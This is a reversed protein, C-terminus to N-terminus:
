LSFGTFLYSKSSKPTGGMVKIPFRGVLTPISKTFILFWAIYIYIYIYIVMIKLEYVNMFWLHCSFVFMGQLIFWSDDAFMGKIWVPHDLQSCCTPHFLLIQWPEFLNLYAMRRTWESIHPSISWNSPYLSIALGSQGSQPCPLCSLIFPYWGFCQCNFGWSWYLGTNPIMLLLDWPTPYWWNKYWKYNDLYMWQGLEGM